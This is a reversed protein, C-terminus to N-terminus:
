HIDRMVEALPRAMYRGQYICAISCFSCLHPCGRGAQVPLMTGIPKATLLGYRPVPLGALSAVPHDYKRAIRGTAEFDALLKPFSIEADGVVVSDVHELAAEAVLSAMYGGLFVPKRRRRFERALELARFMTYGMTGIGVLDVDADFDIEDVVEIRVDIQWRDPAMAALLPFVLGPLYIRDQKCLKGGHDYQTPQILLLRPM